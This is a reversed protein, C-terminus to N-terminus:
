STVRQQYGELILRKQEDWDPEQGSERRKCEGFFKNLADPETLDKLGEKQLAKYAAEKMWASLSKFQKKAQQKFRVLEEEKLIVQVRVPM